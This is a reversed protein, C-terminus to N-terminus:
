NYLGKFFTFESSNKLLFEKLDLGLGFCRLACDRQAEGANFQKMQAKRTGDKGNDEQIKSCKQGSFNPRGGNSSAQSSVTNLLSAQDHHFFL